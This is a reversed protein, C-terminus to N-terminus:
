RSRRSGRFPLVKPLRSPPEDGVIRVLGDIPEVNGAPEREAGGAKGKDSFDADMAMRMATELRDPKGTRGLANAVFCIRALM